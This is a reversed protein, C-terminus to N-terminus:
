TTSYLYITYRWIGVLRQVDSQFLGLNVRVADYYYLQGLQGSDVLKKIKRVAGQQLRFTHDVM